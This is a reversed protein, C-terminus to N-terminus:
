LSLGLKHAIEELSVGKTEPFVLAVIILQLIMSMGFVVFPLAPSLATLVPFIWAVVTGMTWAFFSGLALGKERISNPFIESIYVWIVAGQSFAFFAIYCILLLLLQSKYADFYFIGAIAFLIPALGVSGIMLLKKRGLRDILFMALVTFILNTLGITVSQLDSSTKSFGANEFITNIYYLIGNIGALNNFLGVAFALILPKFYKRQFLSEQQNKSQEDISATIDTLQSHVESAGLYHLTDRAEATLGRSILWRPSRPIFYLAVFFALAPIAECAFKMRWELASPWGLQGFVANSIYALLIGFVISFQYFCVLRGRHEKPAIEAIYMPGMVAAAGVGLGGVIRFLVLSYWDWAIGCGIASLLFFLAAGKLSDRRGFKKSSFGSLLIGILTGVFASTVTTALAVSTLAFEEQMLSNTGAIVSVDFGFLIGGLGAGLATGWLRYNFTNKMFNLPHETTLFHPAGKLILRFFTSTFAPLSKKAGDIHTPLADLLM